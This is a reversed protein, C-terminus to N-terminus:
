KGFTTTWIKVTAPDNMLKRYDTTVEKTIPHVVGVAFHKIDTPLTPYLIHPPQNKITKPIHQKPDNWTACNIFNIAEQSIINPSQFTLQSSQRPQTPMPAFSPEPPSQTVPTPQPKIIGPTNQRTQRLHTCPIHQISHKATPNTSTANSTTM